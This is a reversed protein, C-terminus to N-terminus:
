NSLASCELCVEVRTALVSASFLFFSSDYRMFKGWLHMNQISKVKVISYGLNKMSRNFHRHVNEMVPSGEDLDLLQYTCYDFGKQPSWYWPKDITTVWNRFEQPSFPVYLPMYIKTLILSFIKVFQKSNLFFSIVFLLLRNILLSM